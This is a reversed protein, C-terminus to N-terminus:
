VADTGAEYMPYNVSEELTIIVPHFVHCGERDVMEAESNVLVFFGDGIQQVFILKNMEGAMGRLCVWRGRAM